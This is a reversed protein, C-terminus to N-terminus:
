GENFWTEEIIKEENLYTLNPSKSPIFNSDEIKEISEEIPEITEEVVTFEKEFTKKIYETGEVVMDKSTVLDKVIIDVNEPKQVM